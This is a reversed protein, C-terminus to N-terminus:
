PASRKDFYFPEILAASELGQPTPAVGADIANAIRAAKEGVLEYATLLRPGVTVSSNAVPAPNASGYIESPYCVKIQNTTFFANAQTVLDNRHRSFSPDSSVVLGRAGRRVLRKFAVEFEAPDNGEPDEDASVAARVSKKGARKWDAAEARGMRSNPNYMLWINAEAVGMAVLAQVRAGNDQTTHLDIGGFFFESDELAFDTSDPRRGVLVLFPKEAFQVAAYASVLGGLAVIFDANNGNFKNVGNNLKKHVRGDASYKANAEHPSGNAYTPAAGGTAVRRYGTEFSDKFQRGLSAAGGGFDISTLIGIRAM